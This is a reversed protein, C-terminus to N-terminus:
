KKRGFRQRCLVWIAAWGDTSRIKKGQARSRPRYSIPVERITIGRSLLKGTLEPCFDFGDARLDLDRMLATRVLKYGTAEDTIRSGYLVNTIWSLLRGGWYFLWSSRPNRRLNRSGYVAQVEPDSLPAILAPYDAPDYELDADQVLIIAGTAVGLGTRVAAGKGCNRPHSVSRVLPLRRQLAMQEAVRASGDSSGDDVIIIEKILECAGSRGIREILGPLTIAENFVPIIVSISSSLPHVVRSKRLCSKEPSVVPWFSFARWL